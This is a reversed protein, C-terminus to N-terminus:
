CHMAEVSMKYIASLKFKDNNMSSGSFYWPAGADNWSKPLLNSSSFNIEIAAIITSASSSYLFCSPQSLTQLVFQFCVTMGLSQCDVM